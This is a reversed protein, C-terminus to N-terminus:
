TTRYRVLRQSVEADAPNPFSIVGSSLTSLRGMVWNRAREDTIVPFPQSVNSRSAQQDQDRWQPIKGAYGATGLRHPHKNKAQLARHAASESRFDDTTKKAVFNLFTLQQRINELRELDRFLM